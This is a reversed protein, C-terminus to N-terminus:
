PRAAAGRPSVWRFLSRAFCSGAGTLLLATGAHWVLIMASADIGHFLSLATASAGAVSLAGMATVSRPFLAAAHRLMVLMALSLPLSTLILTALCRATEGPAVGEPGMSVWNTLCQHGISSVWLGLAPLPLLLWLRSRDPLSLLFAAAAALVGTALAAAITVVFAPDGLREVLDPRLGQGVALLALLVVAFLLWGTARVLPPRLRRVPSADRGLAAILSPTDTM